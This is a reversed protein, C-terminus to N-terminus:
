VLKGASINHIMDQIRKLETFKRTMEELQSEKETLTKEHSSIILELESNEKKMQGQAKELRAIEKQLDDHDRRGKKLEDDLKQNCEQLKHFKEQEEKIQKHLNKIDNQADSLMRQSKRIMEDRADLESRLASMEKQLKSNQRDMATKEKVLNERLQRASNQVQSITAQLETKDKQSAQFKQEWTRLLSRLQDNQARTQLMSHHTQRNQTDAAALADRLTMEMHATAALKYEYMEMIDTLGLDKLEIKDVTGKLRAIMSDVKEEYSPLFSQAHSWYTGDRRSPEFDSNLTSHTSLNSEEVAKILSAMSESPVTGECMVEVARSVFESNNSRQCRVIHSMTSPNSLMQRYELMFEAKQSGLLKVVTLVLIVSQAALEERTVSPDKTTFSTFDSDSGLRSMSGSLELGSSSTSSTLNPSGNSSVHMTIILRLLNSFTKPTLVMTLRLRFAVDRICLGELLTLTANVRHLQQENIHLAESFDLSATIAQLFDDIHASSVSDDGLILINKMLRLAPVGCRESHMWAVSKLFIDEHLKQLHSLGLDVIYFLLEMLVEVSEVPSDSNLFNLLTQIGTTYNKYERISEELSHFSSLEGFIDAALRLTSLNNEAFGDTAATFILGLIREVYSNENELRPLELELYLILEATLLQLNISPNKMHLLKQILEKHTGNNQLCTLVPPNSRCLNALTTLAPVLLDDGSSSDLMMEVLIPVLQLVWAEARSIKIRYSIEQLLQLTKGAKDKSLKSSILYESLIPMLKIEDRLAIRITPSRCIHALLSIIKWALPSRADTSSLLQELCVYFELTEM